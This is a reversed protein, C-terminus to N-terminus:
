RFLRAGRDVAVEHGARETDIRDDLDVNLLVRDLFAVQVQQARVPEIIDQGVLLNADHKRLMTGTEFGGGLLQDGLDVCATTRVVYRDNQNLGISAEGAGLAM